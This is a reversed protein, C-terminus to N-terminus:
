EYSVTATFNTPPLLSPPEYDTDSIRDDLKQGSDPGEIRVDQRDDAPAMRWISRCRDSGAKLLTLLAMVMWPRIRSM